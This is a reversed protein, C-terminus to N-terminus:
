QVNKVRAKKSLKELIEQIETKSKELVRITRPGSLLSGILAGSVMGIIGGIWAWTKREDFVWFLKSGEYGALTGAAGGVALGLSIGLAHKSKNVIKIKGIDSVEVTVDAGSDRDMLLLSNQKVAILEGRVQTGDTRNVILDAGKREKAFMNGSLLLISFVLLLSIAERM